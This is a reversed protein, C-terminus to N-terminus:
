LKVKTSIGDFIASIFLKLTKVKHNSYLIGLVIRILNSILVIKKYAFPVYDLKLMLIGNRITHYRRQESHMSIKRGLVTIRNDGMDHIMSQNICIYCGYGKSKARLCWEVDIYDIFFIENMLGVDDLVTRQILSGSSILFTQDQEESVPERKMFVNKYVQSPYETNDFKDILKPGVAGVKYNNNLLEDEYLTLNKVYNESVESDQDFFLFHTCNKSIHNIGINQAISLGYNLENFIVKCNNSSFKLEMRNKSFNDVIVIESVQNLLISVLNNLIDINPNYTVIVVGIIKM